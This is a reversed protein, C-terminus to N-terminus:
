DFYFGFSLIVSQFDYQQKVLVDTSMGGQWTTTHYEEGYSTYNYGLKFYHALHPNRKFIVGISPNIYAGGNISETPDLVGRYLPFSYGLGLDYFSTVGGERSNGRLVLGVPMLNSNIDYTNDIGFRAGVGLLRNQKIYTGLTFSMGPVLITGWRGNFTGVRVDFTGFMSTDSFAFSSKKRTSSAYNEETFNISALDEWSITLSDKHNTGLVLVQGPNIDLVYGKIRLGSKLKVDATGQGYSFVITILLLLLASFRIM